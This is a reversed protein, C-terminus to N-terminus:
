SPLGFNQKGGLKSNEFYLPLKVYLPCTHEHDTGRGSNLGVKLPENNDGDSLLRFSFIERTDPQQNVNCVIVDYRLLDCEKWTGNSYMM